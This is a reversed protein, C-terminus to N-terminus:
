IPMWGIWYIIPLFVIGLGIAIRIFFLGVLFVNIVLNKFRDNNSYTKFEFYKSIPDIIKKECIFAVALSIIFLLLGGLYYIVRNFEYFSCVYTIAICIGIAPLIFNWYKKIWNIM